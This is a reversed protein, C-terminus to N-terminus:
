WERYADDSCNVGSVGDGEGLPLAAPIIEAIAAVDGFGSRDSFYPPAFLEMGTSEDARFHRPTVSLVWM